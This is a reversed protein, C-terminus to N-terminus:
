SPLCVGPVNVYTHEVVPVTLWACASNQRNWGDVGVVTQMTSGPAMSTFFLRDLCNRTENPKVPGMGVEKKRYLCPWKADFLSDAGRGPESGWTPIM